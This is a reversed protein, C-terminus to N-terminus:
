GKQFVLNAYNLTFNPNNNYDLKITLGNDKTSYDFSKILNLNNSKFIDIIESVKIFEKQGISEKSDEPIVDSSMIFYGNPKLLRNIEIACKKIGLNEEKNYEFHTIACSEVITDFFNDDLSKSYNFFNDRVHILKDHQFNNPEAMDVIYVKEFYKCMLFGLASTGAGIDLCRNGTIKNNLIFDYISFNKFICDDSKTVFIKILDEYKKHIISVDNAECYKLNLNM